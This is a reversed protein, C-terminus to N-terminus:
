MSKPFCFCTFSRSSTFSGTVCKSHATESLLKTDKKLWSKKRGMIFGKIYYKCSINFVNYVNMNINIKSQHGAISANGLKKM